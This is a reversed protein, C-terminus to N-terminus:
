KLMRLEIDLLTLLLYMILKRLWGRSWVESRTRELPSPKMGVGSCWAYFGVTQNQNELDRLILCKKLFLGSRGLCGNM